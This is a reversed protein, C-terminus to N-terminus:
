HLQEKLSSCLISRVEQKIKEEEESKVPFELIIRIGGSMEEKREYGSKDM